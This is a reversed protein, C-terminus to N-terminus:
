VEKFYYIETRNNYYVTILIPNFAITIADCGKCKRYIWQLFYEETIDIDKNEFLESLESTQMTKSENNIINCMPIKKNM